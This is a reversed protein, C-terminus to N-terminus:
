LIASILKQTYPHSPNQFLYDTPGKEVVKGEKMVITQHAISRIVALDHSIFLYSLGMTEQLEKLLDLIQAQITLDLASTPEDLILLRPKLVLARAIAVRQRQGGSFEHPYRMMVDLNLHVRDLVELVRLEREERRLKPFHVKLGEAIIDAVTMRPSLSGYPDQFVIQMDKRLPRMEKEKWNQIQKGEFLISGQGDVLKLAALGLSTKGSGSEGVIGITEGQRVAFSVNDVATFYSTVRKLWGTKIPFRVSMHDIKMVTKAGEKLPERVGSPKSSLLKQTYDHKPQKFFNKASGEEVIEGEKMVCIHDAMRQVVGMNHSILLIAMQFKEQLSQMLDLIQKQITVDLATTPEDAILLDPNNALAMAIMVRQRQGGSLEHPFAKRKELMEGLGVLTMLEDIRKDRDISSLTQHLDIAEGIQKEVRHLPNLSTMPEQFVMSIKAGRIKQLDTEPMFILDDGNFLVEGTVKAADKPLLQLFSLATVSKGSGSEGVLATTKGAPIHFSIGKVAHVPNSGQEFTVSLDRVEILNKQKQKSAVSM